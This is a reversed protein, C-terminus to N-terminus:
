APVKLQRLEELIHKWRIYDIAGKIDLAVAVVYNSSARMNRIAKTVAMVCDECGRGKRFGYQRSSISKKLIEGIYTGRSM